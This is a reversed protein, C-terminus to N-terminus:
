ANAWQSRECQSQGPLLPMGSSWTRGGRTDNRVRHCGGGIDCARSWDPARWGPELSPLVSTSQFFIQKRGSGPFQFGKLFVGATDAVRGRYGWWTWCGVVTWRWKSRTRCTVTSRWTLVADASMLSKRWYHNRKIHTHACRPSTDDGDEVNEVLGQTSWVWCAATGSASNKTPIFNYLETTHFCLWATHFCAYTHFVCWTTDSTIALEDLFLAHIGLV